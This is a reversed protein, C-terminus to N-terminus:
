ILESFISDSVFLAEESLRIHRGKLVLLGEKELHNVVRQIENEDSSSPWLESSVEVGALQRLGMVLSERAKEVPDLKEEFERQPGQACYDDLDSGNAWRVGEWHSHAAPGCGIYEGGSWYLENHRCKFGPKAFNSIEYHELGADTLRKRIWDYMSRELDEDLRDSRTSLPTGKEYMLNYISVHEPGLALVRELDAELLELTQGPIGFILDVSINEFGATRAMWFAAEAEDASHIRELIKLCHIEFSQIGISLRNVGKKKLLNLKQSDVTGPNVECSFEVPHFRELVPLFTELTQFRVSTPTGGGIFLTEPSFDQPLHNLEKEM